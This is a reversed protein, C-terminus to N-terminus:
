ALRPRARRLMGGLGAFGLLMMAWTAPEPVPGSYNALRNSFPVDVTGIVGTDDVDSLPLPAEYGNFALASLVGTDTDFTPLGLSMLAFEPDSVGLAGANQGIPDGFGAYALLQPTISSFGKVGDEASVTTIYSLSTSAGAALDGLSIVIPTADWRYGIAKNPDDAAILGFNNLTLGTTSGYVLTPPLVNFISHNAPDYSGTLSLTASFDAVTTAGSLVQFSVSVKGLTLIESVGDSAIGVVDNGCPFACTAEPSQNIDGVLGNPVPDRTPNGQSNIMYMGFGAPTITSNLTPNITHGTNNTYNVTVNTSTILSAGEGQVTSNNAFDIKGLTNDIHTSTQYNQYVGGATDFSFQVSSNGVSGNFASGANVTQSVVEGTVQASAATALAILCM